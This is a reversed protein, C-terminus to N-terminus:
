LDARLGRRLLKGGPTRPLGAVFRWRRPVKPGALRERCWAELEAEALGEGVVWAAVVEGWTPDPLGAVGADKVRPHARLVAEVEEPRVNEGGTIITDDRRGLVSLVGDKLRGLDGTTFVGDGPAPQLTPDVYGPSVTPGRVVIEGEAIEITAHPGVVGATGALEAARGPPVTAVQSCSETLGYSPCVNLGLEVWELVRERSAPGGGVLIARPHRLAEVGGAAVLRALMTPVLAVLTPRESQLAEIVAAEDFRALSVVPQNCIVSRMLIALGGVHHPPLVLLWRDRETAGLTAACGRASAAHNALTLRVGKPEGATGSTYVVCADGPPGTEAEPLREVEGERSRLYADLRSFVPPPLALVRRRRGKGTIPLVPHGDIM